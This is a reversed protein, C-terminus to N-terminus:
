QYVVKHIGTTLEMTMDPATNGLPSLLAESGFTISSAFSNASSTPVIRSVQAGKFDTSRGKSSKKGIWVQVTDLIVPGSLNRELFVTVVIPEPLTLFKGPTPQISSIEFSREATSIECGSHNDVECEEVKISPSFYLEFNGDSLEKLEPVHNLPSFTAGGNSRVMAISVFGSVKASILSAKAQSVLPLFFPILLVAFKIKM